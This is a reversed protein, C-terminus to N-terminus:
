VMNIAYLDIICPTTEIEIIKISNAYNIRKSMKILTTNFTDKKNRM